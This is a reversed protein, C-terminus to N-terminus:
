VLKEHGFFRRYKRCFLKKTIGFNNKGQKRKSFKVKTVRGSLGLARSFLLSAFLLLFYSNLLVTKSIHITQGKTKSTKYALVRIM